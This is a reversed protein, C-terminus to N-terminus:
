AIAELPDSHLFIEKSEVAEVLDIVEEEPADGNARAECAGLHLLWLSKSLPLRSTARVCCRWLEASGRGERQLKLLLVLGYLSWIGGTAM